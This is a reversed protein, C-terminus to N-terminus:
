QSVGARLERNGAANPKGVARKGVTGDRGETGERLGFFRPGNWGGGTIARAVATLSPYEKDRWRYGESTIVVTQREGQYERVLETGPKLRRLRDFEGPKGRAYGALLRLIAPSHGGFARDQINWCVTRVLLDRTLAKPVEKRFTERWLARVEYLSFSQIRVIEAEIAVIINPDPATKIMFDGM